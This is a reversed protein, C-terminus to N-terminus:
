GTAADPSTPSSAGPFRLLRPKGPAKERMFPAMYAAVVDELRAVDSAESLSGEFLLEGARFLTLRDDGDDDFRADLAALREDRLLMLFETKPRAEVYHEPPMEGRSFAYFRDKPFGADATVAVDRMPQANFGKVPYRYLAAVKGM